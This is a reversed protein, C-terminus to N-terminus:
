TDEKVLNFAIALIADDQSLQCLTSSMIPSAM